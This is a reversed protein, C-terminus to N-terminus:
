LGQACRLLEEVIETDSKCSVYRTGRKQSTERGKGTLLIVTKPSAQRVAKRIAEERDLIIEFPCNQAKVHDAIENCISQLDEEGPDEETIYLKRAYRGATEALEQRRAQAKGGPCGYIGIISWGEYESIMAKYLKEFSLRNHAYDVIVTVQREKDEFVEMRGSVRAMLLGEAMVEAPIGFGYCIAIAALANEVNFLGPIGLTFDREFAPTRVHFTIGEAKKVVHSGCIEAQEQMGFTIVRECGEAAWLIEDIHDSDLNVCATRCQSFLTLKSEFYDDFDQHEAESIHDEGINLFCGMDFETGLVRQYKLAQSSVEMTVFPIGSDAAHRFHRQLMMAEPTTLHSEECIVGDYTEIGSIIASRAGGTREAYRDLISRVFYATTSKGKTGTIGIASLERWPEDYFLNALVAMARRIDRVLICKEPATGYEKEAVYWCAGKELASALYKESFHVGKCVFLTHPRVDNSDYSLYAVTEQQEASLMDAALLGERKLGDIYWKLEHMERM